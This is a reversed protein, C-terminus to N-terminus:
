DIKFFVEKNLEPHYNNTNILKINGFLKYSKPTVPPYDKLEYDMYSKVGPYLKFRNSSNHKIDLTIANNLYNYEDTIIWWNRRDKHTFALDIELKYERTNSDNPYPNSIYISSKNNGFYRKSISKGNEDFINITLDTCKNYNKYGIDFNFRVGKIKDNMEFTKSYRDADNIEDRYNKYYGLIEGSIQTDLYCDYLNYLYFYGSPSIGPKNMIIRIDDPNVKIGAFSVSLKYFSSTEVDPKAYAIVEIIDSDLNDGEVSYYIERTEPKYSNISTYGCFGNENFVYFSVSGEKGNPVEAKIHMSTANPPVAIFYRRISTKELEAEKWKRTYCNRTHFTYPVIITNWLEFELRDNQNETKDPNIQYAKIKATYLGPNDILKPDYYCSIKAESNGKIYVTDQVLRIWDADVELKYARYFNDKDDPSLEKPFIPTIKFVQKDQGIPFYSKTRWYSTTSTEDPYLPSFTSIKYDLLNKHENENIFAKYQEFAEPVQILGSGYDLHSYGDIKKASLKLSRKIIFNNVPLPPNNQVMASMLLSVCGAAQPSAMSTGQMTDGHAWRPVSSSAGGPAVIDPKAVDGGRSSFNYMMAKDIPMHYINNAYAKDLLAGVAIINSASAPTGTTQLGPGSNGNSTCIAIFTNEELIKDMFLDLDSKGAAVNYIGYSINFVLPVKNEKAYKIGYLIAQKMSETTTAGGAYNNNGIKLSIVKAGPAIGNLTKQGHLNCGAAIGAVHTGHGGNDYHIVVKNENPFINLACNLLHRREPNYPDKFLFSQYKKKYDVLAEEDNLDMDGDTDIICVIEDNDKLKGIVISYVDDTKGNDNLDKLPSNKKDKETVLGFRLKNDEFQFRDVGLLRKKDPLEIYYKDNENKIETYNLYVAGEGSFDQVDIVKVEGQSDQTLGPIGMDVGTDMVAIVTNRGDFEPNEKIFDYAKVDKTSIFDWMRPNDISYSSIPFYLLFAFISLVIITKISKM